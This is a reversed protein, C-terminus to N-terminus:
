DRKILVLGVGEEAERRRWASDNVTQPGRAPRLDDPGRERPLSFARTITDRSIYPNIKTRPLGSTKTEEDDDDGDLPRRTTEGRKNGRERVPMIMMVPYERVRRPRSHM